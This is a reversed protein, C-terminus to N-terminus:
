HKISQDCLIESQSVSVTNLQWSTFSRHAMKIRDGDCASRNNRFFKLNLFLLPFFSLLINQPPPKPWNQMKPIFNFYQAHLRKKLWLFSKIKKNKKKNISDFHQSYVQFATNAKNEFHYKLKIRSMGVNNSM